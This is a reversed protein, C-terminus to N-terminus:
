IVPRAIRRTEVLIQELPRGPNCTVSQGRSWGQGTFHSTDLGLEAIRQKIMPYVSGGIQLNLARIVGAISRAEVVARGLEQDTWSRRSKPSDVPRFRTRRLTFHSTDLGLQLIQAKAATWAGGSGGYGLQEMVQRMSTSAVVAMRLEDETWRGTVPAHAVRDDPDAAWKGSRAHRLVDPADLGLELMRRRVLSLSGGGKSLGLHELVETLTTAAAM